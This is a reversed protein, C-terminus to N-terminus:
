QTRVEEETQVSQQQQQHRRKHLKNHIKLCANKVLNKIDSKKYKLQFQTLKANLYLDLLFTFTKIKLVSISIAHYIDSM